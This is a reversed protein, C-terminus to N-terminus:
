IKVGRFIINRKQMYNYDMLHGTRDYPVGGQMQNLQGMQWSVSPRPPLEMSKYFGTVQAPVENLVKAALRAPDAKYKNFPVFQVIDRKVKEGKSNKM